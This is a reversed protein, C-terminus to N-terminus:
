DEQGERSGKGAVWGWSIAVWGWSIAVRGWGISVVGWSISMVGWSISTITIFLWFVVAGDNINGFLGLYAGWGDLGCACINFQGDLDDDGLFEAVCDGSSDASFGDFNDGVFYACVVVFGLILSGGGLSDFYGEFQYTVNHKQNM